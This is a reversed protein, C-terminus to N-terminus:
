RTTGAPYGRSFLVRQRAYVAALLVFGAIDAQSQPAILLLAGAFAFIREWWRCPVLLYGQMAVALGYVSLFATV